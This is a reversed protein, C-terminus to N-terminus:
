KGRRRIHKAAEYGCKCRYFRWHEDVTGMSKMPLGCEPCKM